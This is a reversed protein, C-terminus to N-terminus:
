DLMRLSRLNWRVFNYRVAVIYLRPLAAHAAYVPDKKRVARWLEASQKFICRYLFRWRRVQCYSGGFLLNAWALEAIDEPCPPANDSDAFAAKWLFTSQKSLLVQRFAKSARSLRVLDEPPLHSFIQSARCV